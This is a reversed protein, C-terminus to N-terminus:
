GGAPAPGGDSEEASGGSEEGELEGILVTVKQQATALRQQLERLLEVGREYRTMSDELDLEGGELSAVIAELEALADGFAMGQPPALDEEDV